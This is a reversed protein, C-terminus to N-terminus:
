RSLPLQRNILDGIVNSSQFYLGYQANLTGNNTITNITVSNFTQIASQGGTISGNNTINSISIPTGGDGPTIAVDGSATNTISGNNTFSGSPSRFSFTASDLLTVGTNVILNGSLWNIGSANCDVAYPSVSTSCAAGFSTGPSAIALIMSVMIIALINQSKIKKM